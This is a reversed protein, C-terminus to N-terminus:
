KLFKRYWKEWLPVAGDYEDLFENLNKKIEQFDMYWELPLTVGPHLIQKPILYIFFRDENNFIEFGMFEDWSYFNHNITVGEKNLNIVLDSPEYFFPHFFFILAILSIVLFLFDKVLISYLLSFGVIIGWFLHWLLDGFPHSYHSTTRWSINFNPRYHEKAM